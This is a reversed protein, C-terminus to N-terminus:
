LFSSAHVSVGGINPSVLNAVGYKCCIVSRELIKLIISVESWFLQCKAGFYNVSWELIISM